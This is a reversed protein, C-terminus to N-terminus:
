SRPAPMARVPLASRRKWVAAVGRQAVLRGLSAAVGIIAAWLLANPWSVRDDGPNLSAKGSRGSVRGRTTDLLKRALTAGAIGAGLGAAKWVWPPAAGSADELLDLPNDFPNPM